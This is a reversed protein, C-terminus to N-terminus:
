LDAEAEMGQGLVKHASDFNNVAERAVNNNNGKANDRAFIDIQDPHYQPDLEVESVVSDVAGKAKANSTKAPRGNKIATPKQKKCLTMALVASGIAIVIVIVVGVIAFKLGAGGKGSEDVYVKNTVVTVEEQQVVETEEQFIYEIIEEEEEDTSAGGDSGDINFEIPEGGMAASLVPAGFVASQQVVLERIQNSISSLTAVSDEDDDDAVIAYEIVVSGTYVAVVKIQSAHIGLVAAVRDTFSVVGGSAYFEDMTWDLRVASM